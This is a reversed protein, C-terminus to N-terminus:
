HGKHSALAGNREGGGYFWAQYEPEGYRKGLRARCAAWNAFLSRRSWSETKRLDMSVNENSSKVTTTTKKKRFTEAEHLM